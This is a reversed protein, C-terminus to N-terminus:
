ASAAASRRANWKASSGLYDIDSSFNRLMWSIGGSGCTLPGVSTGRM